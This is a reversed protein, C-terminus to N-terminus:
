RPGLSAGSGGGRGARRGGHWVSAVERRGMHWGRGKRRPAPVVCPVAGGGEGPGGDSRGMCGGAGGGGGGGGRVIPCRRDHATDATRGMGGATPCPAARLDGFRGGGGGWVRVDRDALAGVGPLM